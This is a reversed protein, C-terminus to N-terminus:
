WDGQDEDARGGSLEIWLVLCTVALILPLVLALQVADRLRKMVTM